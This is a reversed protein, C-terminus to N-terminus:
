RLMNLLFLLVKAHCLMVGVDETLNEHPLDSIEIDDLLFNLHINLRNGGSIWAGSLIFSELDLFCSPFDSIEPSSLSIHVNTKLKLNQNNHIHELEGLNCVETPM